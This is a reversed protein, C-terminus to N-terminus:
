AESGFLIVRDLREQYEQQLYNRLTTLLSTIEHRPKAPSM